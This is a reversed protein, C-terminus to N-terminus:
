LVKVASICGSSTEYRPSELVISLMYAIFTITSVIWHMQFLDGVDGIYIYELHALKEKKYILRNIVKECGNDLKNKWAGIRLGKFKNIHKM